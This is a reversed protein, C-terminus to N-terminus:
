DPKDSIGEARVHFTLGDPGGHSRNVEDHIGQWSSAPLSLFAAVVTPDFQTGSCRRIEELATQFPLAKRYPRDSTMADLTDVVAFIRSGLPIDSVALGRPYGKGDWREQHTLVIEAAPALFKVDQLIEYGIQPHRKMEMWEEATLKGAKLLISDQVGIKGIDHLLAGRGVQLLEGVPLGLCGALTQAYERVRQSHAQTEHERADLASALAELTIQYSDEINRLTHNLDLTRERVKRELERQYYSNLSVLRHRELAHQVARRIALLDFPKTIYDCAGNRLSAVATSVDRVGTIMIVSTEPAQQRILGLLEVGTMGPMMVDSMVVSFRDREIKELAEHASSAEVCEFSDGQLQRALIFRIEPEDDVILIKERTAATPIM